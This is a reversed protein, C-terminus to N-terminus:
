LNFSKITNELVKQTETESNTECYFRLLPETGSARVIIWGNDFSFKYGDLNGKETIKRNGITDGTKLEKCKLLTAQKLNDTTHVDIRKYFYAGFEEELNKKLQSISKGTKALMELYLLGNFVGDREPLHGKIGIGGSEEAGILVDESIMLKSIHKFGIPVTELELNYKDCYKKIVDSTSYGRVVKGTWGKDHHLYKLLLAFTKQADLFDGNEDIIAIRDADGDTVIGIDYKEDKIKKKAEGLNKEVPEPAGGGFSPNFVAHLQDIKLIESLTNQGTGYMTEYLIKLNKKGILDINIKKQLNKIYYDRGDIYEVIKENLLIDLIKFDTVKGIDKLKEEVKLIEDPNMSGGFEDKLKFGNYQFPNHSATIMVGYALNKDRSLLSVTPTTVFSDTLYVKINMSGFIEAAAVAFEKSLFRTDYGIVIGNEIKPHNIFTQATALSVRRVNEFTYTDAIVARWGDTGFKIEPFNSM